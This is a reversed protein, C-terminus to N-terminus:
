YSRINTAHATKVHKDFEIPDGSEFGCECRRVLVKIPPQQPKPTDAQFLGLRGLIPARPDTRLPRPQEQGSPIDSKELGLSRSLSQLRREAFYRVALGREWQTSQRIEARVSELQALFLPFGSLRRPREESESVQDGIVM